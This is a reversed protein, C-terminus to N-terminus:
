ESAPGGQYQITSGKPFFDMSIGSTINKLSAEDFFQFPPIKRLFEIVEEIIMRPIGETRM